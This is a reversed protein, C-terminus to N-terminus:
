AFQVVIKYQFQNLFFDTVVVMGGIFVYPPLTDFENVGPRTPPLPQM